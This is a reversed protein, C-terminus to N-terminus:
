QNGGMGGGSSSSRDEHIIASFRPGFRVAKSWDLHGGLM